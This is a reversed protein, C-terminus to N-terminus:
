VESAPMSALFRGLEDRSVNRAGPLTGPEPRGPCAKVHAKMARYGAMLGCYRCEKITKPRGRKPKLEDLLLKHVLAIPLKGKQEKTTTDSM